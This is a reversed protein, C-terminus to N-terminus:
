NLKEVWYKLLDGLTKEIDIKPEWGTKEVLNSADGHQYHIDIPRFLQPSVEQKIDKLGSIEILKDTFFSCKALCRAVFMLFM